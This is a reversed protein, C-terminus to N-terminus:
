MFRLAQFTRTAPHKPDGPKHGLVREVLGALQGTREFPARQGTRSLPRPSLARAGSKASGSCSTRSRTRRSHTSSMPRAQGQARCACTSRGMACSPFAGNRRTLSCPPFASIWYLAMWGTGALPSAGRGGDALVADRDAQAARWPLNRARPWGCHGRSRPRPGALQLGGCRPNRLAYGGAGYTGDIFREAARPRLARLVELLLVPIHRVPECISPPGEVPRGRDTVDQEGGRKRRKM